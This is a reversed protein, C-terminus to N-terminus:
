KRNELESLKNEEKEGEMQKTIKRQHHYLWEKLTM